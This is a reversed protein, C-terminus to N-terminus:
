CPLVCGARPEVHIATWVALADRSGLIRALTVDVDALFILALSVRPLVTLMRRGAHCPILVRRGVSRYHAGIVDLHTRVPFFDAAARRVALEGSAVVLGSRIRVSM